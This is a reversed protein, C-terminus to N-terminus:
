TTNTSMCEQRIVRALGNHLGFPMKFGKSFLHQSSYRISGMNSRGYKLLRLIYPVEVPVLFKNIYIKEGLLKRILTYVDGNTSGYEEDSSVIFKDCIQNLPNNFFHMAAGAVDSAYVLHSYEKGTLMIRLFHTVSRYNKIIFTEESFVNTPRLIITKGGKIGKEVIQEARLKSKEYMNIPNCLTREDVINGSVKGIVGVSSLHCFYKVGRRNAANFVNETGGINVARMEKENRLEAACHFVAFCDSMIEEILKKDTVNGKVCNILPDDAIIGKRSLVYVYFGQNRLELVIRKGIIGNGGTILIKEHSMISYVM